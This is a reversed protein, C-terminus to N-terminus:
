KKRVQNAKKVLDSFSDIKLSAGGVLAGDVDPQNMLEIINDPKVSGGYQIRMADATDRDFVKVLLNRIYQHVEQAQLPTATKGTGIAWVPEYAIVINLAETANIDKLGNLIHDDIVKFTENNERQALTEGVCMIPKIGASLAAKVKKNVTENTENFYLRRESHGIIVFACGIDNLMKPSVEGTFAGEDQWYMDQAGLQINSELVVEAVESLATYAPCLVIEIADKDLKFLERKLGNSLEIAEPITKYMKWNGAIITKRM